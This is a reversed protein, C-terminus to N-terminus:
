TYHSFYFLLFSIRNFNILISKDLNNTIYSINKTVKSTLFITIYILKLMMENILNNLFITIPSLYHVSIIRLYIKM